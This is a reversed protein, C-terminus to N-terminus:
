YPYSNAFTYSREGSKRALPWFIAPGSTWGSVEIDQPLGERRKATNPDHLLLSAQLVWRTIAAGTQNRKPNTDWFYALQVQVADYAVPSTAVFSLIASQLLRCFVCGKSATRKLAALEPLVDQHRFESHFRHQGYQQTYPGDPNTASRLWPSRGLVVEPSFLPQEIGPFYLGLRCKDCLHDADLKQAM